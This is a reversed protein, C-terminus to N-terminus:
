SISSDPWDGSYKLEFAIFSESRTQRVGREDGDLYESVHLARGVRTSWCRLFRQSIHLKVRRTLAILIQRDAHKRLEFKGRGARERELVHREIM